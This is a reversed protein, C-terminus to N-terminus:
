PHGYKLNKYDLFSSILFLIAMTNILLTIWVFMFDYTVVSILLISLLFICYGVTYIRFVKTKVELGGLRIVYSVTQSCGIFFLAIAFSSKFGGNIISWLISIFYIALQLYFDYKIFTKM